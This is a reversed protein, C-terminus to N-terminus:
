APGLVMELKARLAEIAPLKAALEDDEGQSCDFWYSELAEYLTFLEDRTFAVEAQGDDEDVSESSTSCRQDKM